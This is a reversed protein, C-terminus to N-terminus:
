LGKYCVCYHITGWHFDLEGKYSWRWDNLDARWSWFIWGMPKEYAQVQAEFWQTYWAKNADTTAFDRHNQLETKPSLSFEGVITPGNSDGDIDDPCSARLYDSLTNGVKDDYKLYRHDDYARFTDNDTLYENPDGSDWAADMMQIHLAKDSPVNAKSEAARIREFAGPYYENRLSETKTNDGREPENVMELMGIGRFNTNNHIIATM